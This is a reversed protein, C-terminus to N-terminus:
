EMRNVPQFEKIARHYSIIANNTPPFGYVKMYFMFNLLINFAKKITYARRVTHQHIIQDNTRDSIIIPVIVFLQFQFVVVFKEYKNKHFIIFYETFLALIKIYM